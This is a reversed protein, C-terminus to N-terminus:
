KLRCRLDSVTIVKFKEKIDQGVEEEVKKENRKSAM